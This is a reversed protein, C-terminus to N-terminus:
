CIPRWSRDLNLSYSTLLRARGSHLIGYLQKFCVYAHEVNTQKGVNPSHDGFVVCTRVLLIFIAAPFLHNISKITLDMNTVNFEWYRKKAGM